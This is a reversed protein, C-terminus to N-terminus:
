AVLVKPRPYLVTSQDDLFVAPVVIAKQLLAANASRRFFWWFDGNLQTIESQTLKRNYVYLGHCDAQPANNSQSVPDQFIRFDTSSLGSTGALATSGLLMGDVYLRLTVGDSTCVVLHAVFPAFTHVGPFFSGTVVATGVTFVLKGTNATCHPVASSGVNNTWLASGGGFAYVTVLM